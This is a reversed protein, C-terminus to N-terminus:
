RSPPPASADAGLPDAARPLVITVTTGAGPASAIAIRGGEREVTRKANALGLGSGATKTSFFPEFARGMTAADMGAGTDAVSISVASSGETRGTVRLTGGSPMAQIANEVLNTLARAVLTRDVRLAPLTPPVDIEFTLRGTEGVRYPDTVEAVLAAPEVVGPRSLAESSFNAFESAIRRLLKVQSLITAVCQDLVTGLPRQRDGHVQQLHEAALQIPTLPNKIEHAVQRAMENWAQLQNTRALATRQEGLTAAMSNFDNVLTRLEDASDSTIRVDLRGAAIQRTARTLRSVPDAVRGALSSGLAAAFLIVLVAGVLVRRNLAELEGALERQRPALPVALIADSGRSAVPAAALVYASDALPEDTVLTPRRELAIGRFVAAPTRSPILGSDFLERRSTAVLEPGDYYNVDEGTVQRIWVMVDDTPPTGTAARGGAADLEELVRRAVTVTSTAEREVDAQFRATVYSGFGVAAAVVPLVAVAVFSLFLKRYFSTRVEHLLLHLPLSGRSVRAYGVAGLQFVVFLVAALAAIEALRSAHEFVTPTPLGLAYVGVRNQSFYVQFTREAARITQWLPVGERYLAGFTSDDFAWAVHGSTFIPRQSWGYVAVGLGPLGTVSADPVAEYPSPSAVFPLADYDNSAVHIVVGGLVRGRDDCVGREAHLMLREDAGFPLAEGFVDWDCGSGQRTQQSTRYLYERLNFAFASVLGGDPGFLEVRSVVRSRALSTQSWLLFARQTDVTSTATVMEALGTFADIDDQARRLEQQQEQPRSAVAPAYREAVLGRTVEDAVRSSLPYFTVLPLLLALFAAALQTAASAHRYWRRLRTATLGVGVAVSVFPVLGVFQDTGAGWALPPASWAVLAIGMAWARRDLRWRASSLAPLALAAWGIAAQGVIAAAAGLVESPAFPFLVSQGRSLAEPTTTLRLLYLIGAGAASLGLGVVLQEGVFQVLARRVERRRHPVRWLTGMTMAVIGLAALAALLPVLASAGAWQAVLGALTVASVLCGVAALTWGIARGRGRAQRRRALPFISLLAIAAVAPVSASALGWRRFERRARAFEAADVQVELLPEGRADDIVFM